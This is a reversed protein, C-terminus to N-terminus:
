PVLTADAVAIGGVEAADLDGYSQRLFSPRGTTAERADVLGARDLARDRPGCVCYGVLM